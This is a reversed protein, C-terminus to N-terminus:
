SKSIQSKLNSIQGMMADRERWRGFADLFRAISDAFEVAAAVEGADVALDLARRLNPLERLAIARAEHPHQTDTHYLFDAFGYYARWYRDELAARRSAPLLSALYPVLTPHFRLFPFAIGPLSEATALAAQELEARADQWLDKDMQTIGLLVNEM